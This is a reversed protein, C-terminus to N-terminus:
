GGTQSISRLIFSKLKHWRSAVPATVDDAPQDFDAVRHIRGAQELQQLMAPVSDAAAARVALLEDRGPLGRYVTVRFVRNQALLGIVALGRQRLTM